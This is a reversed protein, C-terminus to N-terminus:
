WNFGEADEPAPAYSHPEMTYGARGQSLSRVRDAYDFMRRLPVVAEIVRLNGRAIVQTIEARRANLDATVPGLHEEPVTVELHMVPELLVINDRLAKHVADTGAGQMAIETSLEPNVTYGEITARVNIVPYGLEGSQLAGRVGQLAAERLLRPIDPFETSERVEPTSITATPVPEFCVDVYTELRPVSGKERRPHKLTERYSVRPKGVRIKLGFDREMRHQKIELHLVGMGSMLTQGTEPDLKWTFTPDERKLANLTGTLKDKDASSEPEVSRSVVAEAFKILELM